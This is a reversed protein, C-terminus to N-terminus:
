EGSDCKTAQNFIQILKRATPLNIRGTDILPATVGGSLGPDVGLSPFTVGAAQASAALERKVEHAKELDKQAKPREDSETRTSKGPPM